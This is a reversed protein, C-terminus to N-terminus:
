DTSQLSSSMWKRWSSTTTTQGYTTANHTHQQNFLYGQKGMKVSINCDTPTLFGWFKLTQIEM